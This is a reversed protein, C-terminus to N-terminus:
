RKTKKVPTPAKASVIGPSLTNLRAIWKKEDIVLPKNSAKGRETWQVTYFNQYGKFVSILTTQSKEKLTGCSLISVTVPTGSGTAGDFLQIGSFSNPCSSKFNNVASNVLTLPLVQKNLALDKIATVTIVQTWNQFNEGTLAREHIYDAGTMKENILQNSFGSPINYFVQQGFVESVSKYPENPTSPPQAVATLTTASLAALLFPKLM